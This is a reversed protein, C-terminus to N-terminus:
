AKAHSDIWVTTSIKTLVFILGPIAAGLAAAAYTQWGSASAAFAAANMVASGVMTGAILSQSYRAISRQLKEGITLQVLETGIFGCDISIALAWSQWGASAPSVLAIGHALDCLSLAAAAVAVGGLATATMAQRQNAKVAKRSPAAKAKTFAKTTNLQVAQLM